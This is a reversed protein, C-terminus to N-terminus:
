DDTPTRTIVVDQQRLTITEAHHSVTRVTRLHVEEKLVLRRVLVLEEEVVSMITVDGEVRVPPVADVVRGVAFREVFVQVQELDEEVREERASTMTAARVLTRRVRKTM